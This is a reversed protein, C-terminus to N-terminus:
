YDQADRVAQEEEPSRDDLKYEYWNDREFAVRIEELQEFSFPETIRGDAVTQGRLTRQLYEACYSWSEKQEATGPVDQLIRMANEMLTERPRVLSSLRNRFNEASRSRADFCADDTPLAEEFFSRVSDVNGRAKGWASLINDLYRELESMLKLGVLYDKKAELTPLSTGHEVAQDSLGYIAQLNELAADAEEASGIGNIEDLLAPHMTLATRDALLRIGEESSRYFAERVAPLNEALNQLSTVAMYKLEHPSMVRPTFFGSITRCIAALIPHGTQAYRSAKASWWRSLTDYTRGCFTRTDPRVEEGRDLAESGGFEARFDTRLKAKVDALVETQSMGEFAELGETVPATVREGANLPGGSSVEGQAHAVSQTAAVNENSVSWDDWDDEEAAALAAWDDDTMGSLALIEGPDPDDPLTACLHTLAKSAAEKSEPTNPPLAAEAVEEAEETPHSEVQVDETAKPDATEQAKKADAAQGIEELLQAHELAQTGEPRTAVTRGLTVSTSETVHGADETVPTQLTEANIGSVAAPIVKTM